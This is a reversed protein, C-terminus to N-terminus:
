KWKHVTTESVPWNEFNGYKSMFSKASFLFGLPRWARSSRKCSSVLMCTAKHILAIYSLYSIKLTRISKFNPLDGSFTIALIGGHSTCIYVHMAYKDYLKTSISHFAHSSPGMTVFIAIKKKLSFNWFVLLYSKCLHINPKDCPLENM